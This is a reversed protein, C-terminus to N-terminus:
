SCLAITRSITRSAVFEDPWMVCEVPGTFDELKCRVYRTNGNRGAKKTNMFRM